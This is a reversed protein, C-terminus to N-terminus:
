GAKAAKKPHFEFTIRDYLAKPKLRERGGEQAPELSVLGLGELLRADRLVQSQDKELVKALEYLSNPRHEVIAAFTEFRSKSMVDLMSQLSDCVMEDDRIDPVGSEIVKRMRAFAKKLPKEEYRFTFTKM